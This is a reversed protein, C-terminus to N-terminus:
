SSIKKDSNEPDPLIVKFRCKIPDGVTLVRFVHHEVSDRFVHTGYENLIYSGWYKNRDLVLSTINQVAESSKRFDISTLSINRRVRRIIFKREKEMYELFSKRLGDLSPLTTFKAYAAGVTKIAFSVFSGPAGSIRM